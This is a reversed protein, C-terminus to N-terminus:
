APLMLSEFRKVIIPRGGVSVSHVAMEARQPDPLGNRKTTVLVPMM